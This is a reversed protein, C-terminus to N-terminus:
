QKVMAVDSRCAAQLIAYDSDFRVAAFEMASSREMAISATAAGDSVEFNAIAITSNNCNVAYNAVAKLVSLEPYVALVADDLAMTVQVLATALTANAATQSVSAVALVRLEPQNDSASMNTTGATSISAAITLFAAAFFKTNM